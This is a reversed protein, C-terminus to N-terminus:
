KAVEDATRPAAAGSAIAKQEVTKDLNGAAVNLVASMLRLTSSVPVGDADRKRIVQNLAGVLLSFAFLGLTSLVPMLWAPMPAAVVPPVDGLLVLAPLELYTM